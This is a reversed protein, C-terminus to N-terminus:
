LVGRTFRDWLDASIAEADAQIGYRAFHRCVNAIDRALLSEAHMNARPDCAQPFDIAVLDEGSVLLNYASLDAHVVNCALWLEIEAVLQDLLRQASAASLHVDKLQPAPGDDDGIWEMAVAGGSSGLPRPVHSGARYLVRLTEYESGTWLTSHVERGFRTRKAAARRARRDLIVRGEQYTSDNRFSRFQQPKYVKVAVLDAQARRGGRCCFLTAEKGSKVQYLVEDILEDDILPAIADSVTEFHV